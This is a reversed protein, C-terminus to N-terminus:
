PGVVWGIGDSIVQGTSVSDRGWIQATVATGMNTLFGAPNNQGPPPACGSASWVIQAFKNMNIAMLGDCVAPSTGGSEIPGARRLGGPSLCLLGDGPGGFPVGTVMPQNSYLLLGARCGRTPGAAVVFGTASTASPMGGAAISAPGCVGTTKATCFKTFAITPEIQIGNLSGCGATAMAIIQLTGGTVVVIDQAYTIGFAHSGPWAGSVSQPGAQGGTVAVQTIFGTRNDPAWAYTRVKYAGDTLGTFDFTVANATMGLNNLDDMLSEDGGTTQPHNFDFNGIGGFHVVGVGTTAGTVDMLNNVTTGPAGDLPNWFGPLGAAAYSSAPVGFTSAADGADINIAQGFGPGALWV